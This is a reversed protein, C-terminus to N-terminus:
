FYILCFIPLIKKKNTDPLDSFLLAPDLDPDTLRLYRYPDASGSGYLFTM